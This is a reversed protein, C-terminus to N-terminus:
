RPPSCTGKTKPRRFKMIRQPIKLRKTVYTTLLAGNAPHFLRLSALLIYKRYM